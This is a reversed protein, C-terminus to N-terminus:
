IFPNERGVSNTCHLILMTALLLVTLLAPTSSAGIIDPFKVFDPYQPLLDIRIHQPEDSQASYKRVLSRM